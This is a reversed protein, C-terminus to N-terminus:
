NHNQQKLITTAKNALAKTKVKESVIYLHSYPLIKNKGIFLVSVNSITVLAPKILFCSIKNIELRAIQSTQNNNSKKM